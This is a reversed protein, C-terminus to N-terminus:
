ADDNAADVRSDDDNAAAARATEPISPEAPRIAWVVGDQKVLIQGCARCRGFSLDHDWGLLERAPHSCAKRLETMNEM